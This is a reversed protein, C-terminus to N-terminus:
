VVEWRLGKGRPSCDTSWAADLIKIETGVGDSQYCDDCLSLGQGSRMCVLLVAEVGEMYMCVQHWAERAVM